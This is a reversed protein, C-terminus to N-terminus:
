IKRGQEERRVIEQCLQAEHIGKRVKWIRGSREKDKIRGKGVRGKGLMKM